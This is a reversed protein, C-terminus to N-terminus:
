TRHTRESHELALLLATEQRKLARYHRAVHDLREMEVGYEYKRLELQQRELAAKLLSPSFQSYRM